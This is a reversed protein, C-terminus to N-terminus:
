NEEKANQMQASEALIELARYLGAAIGQMRIAGSLTDADALDLNGVEGRTEEAIQRILHLAKMMVPKRLYQALEETEPDTFEIVMVAESDLKALLDM